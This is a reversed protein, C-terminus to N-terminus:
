LFGLSIQGDRPKFNLYVSETITNQEGDMIKKFSSLGTKVSFKHAYLEQPPAYNYVRDGANGDFTLMWKVGKTNLRDLEAFLEHIDFDTKTYRDKTGGYPPDLFVFDDVTVNDLCERYDVNSFCFKQIAASWEFIIKELTNPNIGPRSLHFSNNFDGNDNYRIMGNVCTRTLFLFDMCDRTTNFRDRVEYYVEQGRVQLDLWRRNYEDAVMRPSEKICTWLNVLEPIIDNARGSVCRAFPMLAGGGLFPEYYTDCQPFCTALEAAVLRKSGFWKVVPPFAKM